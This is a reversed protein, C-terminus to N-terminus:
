AVIKKRPSFYPIINRRSATQRNMKVNKAANVILDKKMQEVKAKALTIGTANTSDLWEMLEAKAFAIILPDYRNDFPLTSGIGVELVDFLYDMYLLSYANPTPGFYIRNYWRSYVDPVVARISDPDPYMAVFDAYEMDLLTFKFTRESMMLIENLDMIANQSWDFSSLFLRDLPTGATQALAINSAAAGTEILSPDNTYLPVGNNDYLWGSTPSSVVLYGLDNTWAYSNSLANNIATVVDAISACSALSIGATTINDITVSITDGSVGTFVKSNGVVKAMTIDTWAQKYDTKFTVQKSIDQYIEYDYLLQRILKLSDNIADVILNDLDTDVVDYDSRRKIKAAISAVTTKM